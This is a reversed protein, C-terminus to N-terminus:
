LHPHSCYVTARKSHLPQGVLRDDDPVGWEQCIERNVLEAISSPFFPLLVYGFGGLEVDRTWTNDLDLSDFGENLVMCMDGDKLFKVGSWGFYVVVGAAGVGIFFCLLTLWWSWRARGDRESMWPKDEKVLKSELRNSPMLSKSKKTYPPVPSSSSPLYPLSPSYGPSHPYSPPSWLSSPRSAPSLFPARM